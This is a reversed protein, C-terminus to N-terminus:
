SIAYRLLKEGETKEKAIEEVDFHASWNWARRAKEEQAIDIVNVWCIGEVTETSQCICITRLEVVFM